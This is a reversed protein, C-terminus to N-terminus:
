PDLGTCARLDAWRATAAAAAARDLPRPAGGEIRAPIWRYGDVRRGTVTVELVGHHPRRARRTGSSTGSATPSSRAASGAPARSGTPTGASSSTRGCCWLTRWRGSIAAPVRTRRSGGTCSCWSPTLSRGRRRSRQVLRDVRKASALGAQTPTATWAPIMSDGLVQTAGIVSIRQGRVTTVFPRYAENEDGGIGIIFSGGAGSCRGILGGPGGRRLGDRPQQGHVGHRLRGGAARRRRRRAGPLHVGQGALAVRVHRARDRPQRRGPRCRQPGTRDGVLVSTPDADLRTRNVGQFNMDGAFAITVPEGSGLEVAFPRPPRRRFRAPQRHHSTAIVPLTADVQDPSRAEFALAGVVGGAALVAMAAVHSDTTGGGLDATGPRASPRGKRTPGRPVDRTRSRSSRSRSTSM